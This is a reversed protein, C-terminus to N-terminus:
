PRKEARRKFSDLRKQIRCQAKEKPSLKVEKAFQERVRKQSDKSLGQLSISIKKGDARKFEVLGNQCDVLEAEISHGAANTWTGALSVTSLFASVLIYGMILKVLFM